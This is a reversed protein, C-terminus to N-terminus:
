LGTRRRLGLRRQLHGHGLGGGRDPRQDPLHQSPRHPPHRHRGAQGAGPIRDGRGLGGGPSRRRHRLPDRRPHEAPPTCGGQRGAQLDFLTAHQLSIAARMQAFMDGPSMREDDIALGPRIGRDILKQIPPSGFGGTMESSPALSVSAGPSSRTSIRTMSIPATSWPSTRAWCGREALRAILGRGGQRFGCPRPHAPRAGPGAAWDGALRDLDRGTRARPGSPSPPRRARGRRGLRALLRAAPGASEAAPGTPLPISSCRACGPM